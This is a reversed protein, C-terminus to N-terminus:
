EEYQKMYRYRKNRLTYIARIQAYDTVDYGKLRAFAVFAAISLVILSFIVKGALLPINYGIEKTGEYLIHSDSEMLLQQAPIIGIGLIIGQKLTFWGNIFKDQIEKDFPIPFIRM